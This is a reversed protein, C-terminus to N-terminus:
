REYIVTYEADADSVVHKVTRWGGFGSFRSSGRYRQKTSGSGQGGPSGRTNFPDFFFPSQFFEEGEAVNSIIM